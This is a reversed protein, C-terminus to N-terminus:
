RYRFVHTCIQVAHETSRPLNIIQSYYSDCKQQSYHSFLTLIDAKNLYSVRCRRFAYSATQGLKQQFNHLSQLQWKDMNM